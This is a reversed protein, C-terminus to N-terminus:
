RAGGQEEDILEEAERMLESVRIGFAAAIREMDLLRPSTRGNMWAGLTISSVDVQDALWKLTRCDRALRGRVIRGLPTVEVDM